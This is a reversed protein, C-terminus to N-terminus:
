RLPGRRRSHPWRRPGQMGGKVAMGARLREAEDALPAFVDVDWGAHAALAILVHAANGGGCVTLKPM